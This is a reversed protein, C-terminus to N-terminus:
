QKYRPQRLTDLWAQVDKLDDRDKWMGFGVPDYEEEQSAAQLPLLVAVARGRWTVTVREGAMVWKLIHGTQYRLQKATVKAAVRSVELYVSCLICKPDAM